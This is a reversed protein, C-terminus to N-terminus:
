WRLTDSWWRLNELEITASTWLRVEDYPSSLRDDQDNGMSLCFEDAGLHYVASVLDLSNEGAPGAVIGQIRVGHGKGDEMFYDKGNEMLYKDDV